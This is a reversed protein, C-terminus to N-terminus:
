RSKAFEPREATTSGPECEGCSREFQEVQREAEDRAIGYGKQIAGILQDRKGAIVELEQDTLKGWSEKVKGKFQKWDGKVTDWNM